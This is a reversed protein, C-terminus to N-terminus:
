GGAQGGVYLALIRQYLRSGFENLSLNSGGGIVRWGLSRDEFFEANITLREGRYEVHMPNAGYRIADFIHRWETAPNTLVWAKEHLEPAKEPEKPEPATTGPVRMINCVMQSGIKWCDVAGSTRDPSGNHLFLSDTWMADAREKPVIGLTHTIDDGDINAAIWGGLNKQAELVDALMGARAEEATSYIHVEPWECAIESYERIFYFLKM